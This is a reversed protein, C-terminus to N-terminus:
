KQFGRLTKVNEYVMKEMMAWIVYDIPNLDCYYPSWNEKRIYNPVNENLYNTVSNAIHWCAGDQQITFNNDM